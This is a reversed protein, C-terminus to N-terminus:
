FISETLLTDSWDKTKWVTGVCNTVELWDAKSIKLYIQFGPITKICSRCLNFDVNRKLINLEWLERSLLEVLLLFQM